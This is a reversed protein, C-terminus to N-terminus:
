TKTCNPRHQQEIAVALVATEGIRNGPEVIGYFVTWANKSSNLLKQQIHERVHRARQNACSDYNQQFMMAPPGTLFWDQWRLQSIVPGTLQEITARMMVHDCVQWGGHKPPQDHELAQQIQAPTAQRLLDDGQAAFWGDDHQAGPPLGALVTALKAHQPYTECRRYMAGVGRTWAKARGSPSNGPEIARQWLTPLQESMCGPQEMTETIARLTMSRTTHNRADGGTDQTELNHMGTLQQRQEHNQLSSACQRRARARQRQAPQARRATATGAQQTVTEAQRIRLLGNITRTTEYM